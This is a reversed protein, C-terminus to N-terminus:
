IRELASGEEFEVSKLWICGDFASESIEKVSAPVSVKEVESGAFWYKGIAEMGTPLSVKRASRLQELMVDGIKVDLSPLRIVTNGGAYAEIDFKMTPLVYIIPSCWFFVNKGVETLQSDKEFVMSHFSQCYEFASNDICKVGSPITIQKLPSYSFCHM